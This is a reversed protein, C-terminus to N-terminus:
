RKAVGKKKGGKKAPKEKGIIKLRIGYDREIAQLMREVEVAMGGEDDRLHMAFYATAMMSIIRGNAQEGTRREITAIADVVFRYDDPDDFELGLRIRTRKAKDDGEALPDPTETGTAIRVEAELARSSLNQAKQLWEGANDDDLVRSIFRLKTWGLGVLDQKVGGSVRLEQLTTYIKALEEAKRERFGLVAWCWDGFGQFTRTGWKKWLVEERVRLILGGLALNNAHIDSALKEIQVRIQGHSLKRIASESLPGM